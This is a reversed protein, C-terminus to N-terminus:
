KVPRLCAIIKSVILKGSTPVDKPQIENVVGNLKKSLPNDYQQLVFQYFM